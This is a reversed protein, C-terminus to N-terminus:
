QESLGINLNLYGFLLAFFVQCGGGVTQGTIDHKVEGSYFRNKCVVIFIQERTVGETCFDACGEGFFFDFGAEIGFGHQTM